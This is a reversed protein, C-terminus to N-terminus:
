FSWHNKEIIIVVSIMYTNNNEDNMAAAAPHVLSIVRENHM